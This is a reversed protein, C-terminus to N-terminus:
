AAEAERYWAELMPKLETAVLEIVPWGSQPPKMYAMNGYGKDPSTKAAIVTWGLGILREAEPAVKDVWLGIHKADEIVDPDYLSGKEGQILELHHPGHRSYTARIKVAVSGSPTWLRLPDYIHIPAWVVGLSQEFERQAAELDRVAIGTHYIATADIM